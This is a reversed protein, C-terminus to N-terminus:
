VSPNGGSPDRPIHGSSLTYQVAIMWFRPIDYAALSKASVCGVWSLVNALPSSRRGATGYRIRLRHCTETDGDRGFRRHGSRPNPHLQCRSVNEELIAPDDRHALPPIITRFFFRIRDQLLEFLPRPERGDGASFDAETWIATWTIAAM